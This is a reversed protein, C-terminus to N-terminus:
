SRPNLGRGLARFGKKSGHRADTTGQDPPTSMARKEDVHSVAAYAAGYGPHVHEGTRVPIVRPGRLPPM